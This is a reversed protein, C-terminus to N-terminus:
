GAGTTSASGPPGTPSGRGVQGASVREAGRRRRFFTIAGVIWAAALALLAAPIMLLGYEAAASPATRNPLFNSVFGLSGSRHSRDTGAANDALARVFAILNAPRFQLGHFAGRRVGEPDIIHTVIGHIFEGDATEKFNQGYREATKRTADEPQGPLTSLFVWNGPNFGHLLGYKRRFDPRDQQPNVSISVFEVRDRLPSRDITGQIRALLDSQLPCEEKCHGDIFNLVVVKGKLGDLSLARGEADQLAFKPAASNVVQFFEEAKWLQHQIDALSRASAPASISAAALALGLAAVRMAITSKQPIAATALVKM